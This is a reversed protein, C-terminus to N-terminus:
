TLAIVALIPALYLALLIAIRTLQSAYVMAFEGRTPQRSTLTAGDAVRFARDDKTKHNEVSTLLEHYRNVDDPSVTGKQIIGDYLHQLALYNRRMEISRGRFDRGTVALSVVLLAIALVSAYIDTNHGLATPFRTSVVSIIAALLAYWVLLAQSHFDMRELRVQAQIRAKYTFWIKDSLSPM